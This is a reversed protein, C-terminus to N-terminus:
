GPIRRASSRVVPAIMSRSLSGVEVLAGIAIAPLVTSTGAPPAVAWVGPPSGCSTAYEVPHGSSAGEGTDEADAQGSAAFRGAGPATKAVLLASETLRAARGEKQVSIKRASDSGGPINTSVHIM